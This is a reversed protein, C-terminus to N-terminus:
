QRTGAFASHNPVIRTPLQQHFRASAIEDTISGGQDADNSTRSKQERGTVGGLRDENCSSV